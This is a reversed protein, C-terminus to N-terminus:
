RRAARGRRYLMAGGTILAAGAASAALVGESGTEAMHPPEGTEEHPTPAPAHPVHAPPPTPKGKTPPAPPTVEEDGYGYGDDGYGYGDDGYGGYGCSNGYTRDFAMAVGIGLNCLNVPLEIRPAVINHSLAGYASGATSSAAQKGDDDAGYSSGAAHGEDKEEDKADGCSNGYTRDLVTVLDAEVNCVGVPAEVEPAVTNHSLPGSERGADQKGDDHSGGHSSESAHGKGEDKADKSDNTGKTDGCSNGYTHDLLTIVDAKANCVEVPAKVTPAVTNDTLAGTAGEGAGLALTDALAPTGYLSLIGTAAAAALMGRSLTQRM